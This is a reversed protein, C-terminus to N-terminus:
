CHKRKPVFHFKLKSFNFLKLIFHRYSIDLAIVISLLSFILHIITPMRLFLLCLLM